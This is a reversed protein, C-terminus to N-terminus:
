LLVPSPICTILIYHHSRLSLSDRTIAKTYHHHLYTHHHYSHTIYHSSSTNTSRLHSHCLKYLTLESTNHHRPKGPGSSTRPLTAAPPVSSVCRRVRRWRGGSRRQCWRLGTQVVCMCVCVCVCVCVCGGRYHFFSFPVLM